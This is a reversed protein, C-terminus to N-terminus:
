DQPLNLSKYVEDPNINDNNIKFTIIENNIDITNM